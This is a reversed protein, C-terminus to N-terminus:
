GNAGEEDQIGDLRVKPKDRHISDAYRQPWVQLDINVKIREAIQRSLKAMDQAYLQLGDHWDHSWIEVFWQHISGYRGEFEADPLIIRVDVDRPREETLASGVLYVPHGFRCYMQNAWGGLIIRLYIPANM